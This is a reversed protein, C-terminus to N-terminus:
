QVALGAREWQDLLRIEAKFEDPSLMGISRQNELARYTKPLDLLPGLKPDDRMVASRPPIRRMATQRVEKARGELIQYARRAAVERRPLGTEPDIGDEAAAITEDFFQLASNKRAAAEASYLDAMAGQETFLGDIQRRLEKAPEVNDRRQNDANKNRLDAATAADIRGAAQEVGIETGVDVGNAMLSEVRAVSESDNRAAKDTAITKLMQDAEENDILDGVAAAEIDRRTPREAPDGSWIRGWLLTSTDERDKKHSLRDEAEARVLTSHQRNIESTIDGVISDRLKVPLVGAEGEGAMLEAITATADREGRLVEGFVKQGAATALLQGAEHDATEESMIGLAVLSSYRGHLNQAAQAFDAERGDRAAAFALEADAEAGARIEGVNREDEANNAKQRLNGVLSARLGQYQEEAFGKAYEPVGALKPQVYSDLRSAFEDPDSTRLGSFEGQLETAHALVDRKARDLYAMKAVENRQQQLKTLGLSPEVDEGAAIRQRIEGEERDAIMPDVTKSFKDHFRNLSEAIDGGIGQVPRVPEPLAMRRYQEQGAM